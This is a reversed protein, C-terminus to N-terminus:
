PWVRVRFLYALRQDLAPLTMVVREGVGRIRESFATWTVLDTSVELVYERDPLALWGVQVTRNPQEEPFSVAFVSGADRPDTGAMFEALEDAGDRDLDRIGPDILAGDFHHREWADPIGNSNTDIFSYRGTVATLNTSSGITFNQPAPADHWPVPNWVISYDGAPLNTRWVSGQGAWQNTGSGVVFRAQALSNSVVLGTEAVSQMEVSVDDIFWGIRDSTNFSFMQYNFRIRVVSGLYPTLDLSVEEWGESSEERNAYIARWSGGGDTSVAVQALEIVFDGFDDEGGDATTFDYYHWFKLRARNGGVLSIAPSILDTFAFDVPDGRLNTAWCRTGSRAQIGARNVPTGHQWRSLLFGSGGDDDDDFGGGLISDNNFVAWGVRGSELDDSWPPTVPRLTRLQHLVADNNDTTTNGAQDRSVVVFYYTRDPLLGRLQVEHRNGIEASYGSRTLFTESASEGFRVLADTPKDTTWTIYAENYSTEVEIGTIRPPTTDVVAGTALERGGSDVYRVALEDGDRAGLRVPAGPLPPPDAAPGAGVPQVLVFRGRFVGRLPTEFCEVMVPDPVTTTSLTVTVSDSGARRSDSVEIVGAGPVTYAPSNLALSTLGQLGPMLFELANGLLTARNNPAAAEAPVAELPFSLFVGRGRSDEGTRPFRLGVIRGDEQVFVPAADAALQLHDPGDEWVIGLLDILFGSPFESYDLDILAGSGVPDGRVAEVQVAGRDEQFGVVRLTNRFFASQNLETLRTLLDFSAVFLSGGGEVYAALAATIGPTPAQLEEPRWLVVRYAKLQELSPAGGRVQTDWVEYDIGLADLTSTWTEPGPYPTEQLLEIFIREPSYVLLASSPRPAVFRFYRGSNDNTVSNGARDTAVVMYFYTLGPELPPLAVRPQIRFAIDEVVNTVANTTGYIIRSSSPESALWSVTVQGFQATAAIDSIVPPQLDIRAEAVREGAPELDVYVARLTEGDSARWEGPGAPGSVLTVAGTFTNANVGRNLTLELFGASATSGVRVTATERGRLGDDLLRLRALGPVRYAARDWSIVGEGPAPLQGSVVLAFDQRAAGARRRIDQVVNVGLVRVIWEGAEPEVLHVAEVNNIRDGVPTGAVSEGEAFANGRYLIGSPSIVELDLDNVLAPIAAPLGPADTYVLTVKLPEGAAVIVRKEWVGGTTLEVGQDTFEHRRESDILVELNVRGWGEDNNPVPGTDGVVEGPDDPDDPDTPVLATGMDEASNILAAKVLAPSPTLGGRTQRYWQIFVACAGSVHPGSQSTGGQYLYNDNIPSWANEDGAAQSKLSAIWTGPAVVDPKIRGDECPGRSSFDAMVEPGEGYIGFVYRSNQCAGTAIVNKAVAPTGITQGGPGSNGASFELVYEQDGPTLADADRVLADFEAATLDYRGQTDEGWSNSGVYAGARVADRTMVEFSPPSRYNGQGDFIRQGVLHSGPAVGLGYLAGDEDRQGLAANGAIIGACHTGHSHEDSADELGGYAFLADVRGDLDPHMLDIFGLDLGSDAVAVTVGRGDFGLQHVWAFDGARGTEGAVIKTSVEDLMRMRPALEIWIVEGSRLLELLERANVRGTAIPGLARTSQIRAGQMRTVAWGEAVGGSGDRLLVRVEVSRGPEAGLERIVGSHVKYRPQLLGVWRVSEVGRLEGLRVGELRAIYSDEPVFHLLRVGLAELGAIGVPDPRGDFQVLYLGSVPVEDAIAPRASRAAVVPTEITGNRLRIPKTSDSGSLPHLWAGLLIWWALAFSIPRM